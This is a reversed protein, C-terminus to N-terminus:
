CTADALWFNLFRKTKFNEPSNMVNDVSGSELIFGNDMFMVEDAIRRAQGVSHTVLVITAAYENRYENILQESLLTSEIDMASTPEDLLVLQADSMLTRCLAMRATEGGSLKSASQEKLHSIEMFEMMAQARQYDEKHKASAVMVNKEVTTKFAHNKQPMFAIKCGDYDLLTNKGADSKELGAIIKLLTSKGSGNAGVIAYIKKTLLTVEDVKLVTKKGYTKELKTFKM